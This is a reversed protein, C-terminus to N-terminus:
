YWRMILLDNNIGNTFLVKNLGIIAKCFIETEKRSIDHLFWKLLVPLYSAPLYYRKILIKHTTVM